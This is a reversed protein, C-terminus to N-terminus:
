RESRPSTPPTPIVFPTPGGGFHLRGSAVSDGARTSVAFQVVDANSRSLTGALEDGPGIPRTFKVRTVRSPIALDAHWAHVAPLVLDLLTSVGPLIPHGPFHGDFRASDSPISAEFRDRENEATRLDIRSQAVRRGDDLAREFAEISLKGSPARAIRPVRVISRPVFERDLEAALRAAIPGLCAEDCAVIAALRSGRAPSSARARVAADRVGPVSRIVAEVHSASIRRGGIKVLDADRAVFRFGEDTIEVHDSIAVPEGGTSAYRSRVAVSGDDAVDLSVGPLPAFPSAEADRMGIGGTETSGFIEVVRRAGAAVAEARIAPSLEAGSSVVSVDRLASEDTEKASRAFAHITPPAGVFWDIPARDPLDAHTRVLPVVVDIAAVCPLAIGFLFGYVHTSPVGLAIRARDGIELSRALTAAEDLLQSPTKRTPKPAGTTGSTMFVLRPENRAADLATALDPGGRVDPVLTRLDFGSAGDRDHVVLGAEHMAVLRDVVVATFGHPFVIDRGSAIGAAVITALRSRDSTAAVITRAGRRDLERVLAGALCALEAGTVVSGAHVYRSAFARTV